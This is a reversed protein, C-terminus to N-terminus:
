NLQFDVCYVIEIYNPLCVSISIFIYHCFPKLVGNITDSVVFIKYWLGNFSAKMIRQAEQLKKPFVPARLIKKSFYPCFNQLVDANKPSFMLM